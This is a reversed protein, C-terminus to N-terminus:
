SSVYSYILMYVSRISLRYFQFLRTKPEKFDFQYMSLKTISLFVYVNGRENKFFYRKVYRSMNRQCHLM